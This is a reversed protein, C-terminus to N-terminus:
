MMDVREIDSGCSSDGEPFQSPSLGRIVLCGSSEVKSPETHDLPQIPQRPQHRPHRLHPQRPTTSTAPTDYDNYAEREAAIQANRRNQYQNIDAIQKDLADITARAEDHQQSIQQNYLAEARKMEPYSNYRSPDFPKHKANLKRQAADRQKNLVAKRWHAYQDADEVGRRQSIAEIAETPTLTDIHTDFDDDSLTNLDIAQNPFFM